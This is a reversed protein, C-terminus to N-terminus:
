PRRRDRSNARLGGRRDPWADPRLSVAMYVIALRKVNEAECTMPHHLARQGCPPPTRTLSVCCAKCVRGSSQRRYIRTLMRRYLRTLMRFFHFLLLLAAVLRLRLPRLVHALVFDTMEPRALITTVLDLHQDIRTNIGRRSAQWMVMSGHSAALAPRLPARLNHCQAEELICQPSEDGVISRRGGPLSLRM